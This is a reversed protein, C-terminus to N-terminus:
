GGSSFSAARALSALAVRVRPHPGPRRDAKAAFGRLQETLATLTSERGYLSM